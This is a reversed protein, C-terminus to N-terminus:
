SASNVNFRCKADFTDYLDAINKEYWDKGKSHAAKHLFNQEGHFFVQMCAHFKRRMDKM